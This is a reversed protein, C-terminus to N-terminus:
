WIGPMARTAPSALLCFLAGLLAFASLSFDNYFIDPPSLFFLSCFHLLILSLLGASNEKWQEPFAESYPSTQTSFQIIHSLLQIHRQPFPNWASPVAPEFAKLELHTQCIWPVSLLGNLSSHLCCISPPLPHLWLLVAHCQLTPHQAQSLKPLLLPRALLTHWLYLTCTILLLVRCYHAGVDICCVCPVECLAQM